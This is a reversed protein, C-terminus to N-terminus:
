VQGERRDGRRVRHPRGGQAAGERHPGLPVEGGGGARHAGARRHVQARRGVRRGVHLDRRRDEAAHPGAGARDEGGRRGHDGASAASRACRSRRRSRPTSSRATPTSTCSATSASTTSSGRRRAAAGAAQRPQVHGPARDARHQAAHAGAHVRAPVVPGLAVAAREAEPPVAAARGGEGAVEAGQAAGGSQGVAGRPEGLGPRRQRVLDGGGAGGPSGGGDGRLRPPQPLLRTTTGIVGAGLVIVRM